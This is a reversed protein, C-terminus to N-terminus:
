KTNTETRRSISPLNLSTSFAPVTVCIDTGSTSNSFNEYKQQSINFTFQRSIHQRLETADCPKQRVVVKRTQAYFKYHHYFIDIKKKAEYLFSALLFSELAFLTIKYHNLIRVLNRSSVDILTQLVSTRLKM